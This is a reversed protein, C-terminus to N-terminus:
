VNVKLKMFLHRFFALRHSVNGANGHFFVITPVAAIDDLDVVKDAGSQTFMMLHLQAAGDRSPLMVEVLSKGLGFGHPNLHETRSGPPMSPFYLLYDQMYYAAVAISLGGVGVFAAISGFSPLYQM